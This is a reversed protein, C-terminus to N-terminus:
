KPDVKTVQNNKGNTLLLANAVASLSIPFAGRTRQGNRASDFLVKTRCADFQSTPIHWDCLGRKNTCCSIEFLWVCKFEYPLGRATLAPILHRSQNSQNQSFKAPLLLSNANGLKREHCEQTHTQGAPWGYNLIEEPVRNSKQHFIEIM